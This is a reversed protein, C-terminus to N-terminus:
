EPKIIPEFMIDVGRMGLLQVLSFLSFQLSFHLPMRIQGLVALAESLNAAHGFQTQVFLQPFLLGCGLLGPVVVNVIVHRLRDFIAFFAFNDGGGGSNRRNREGHATNYLRRPLPVQLRNKMSRWNGAWAGRMPFLKKRATLIRVQYM